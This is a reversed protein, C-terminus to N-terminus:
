DPLGLMRFMGNIIDYLGGKYRLCKVPADVMIAKGKWEVVLSVLEAGDYGQGALVEVKEIPGEPEVM